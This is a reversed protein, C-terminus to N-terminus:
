KKNSNSNENMLDIADILNFFWKFSWIVNDEIKTYVFGDNKDSFYKIYNDYSFIKFREIPQVSTRLRMNYTINYMLEARRKKTAAKMKNPILQLIFLDMKEIAETNLVM